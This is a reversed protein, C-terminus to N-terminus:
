VQRHLSHFFLGERSVRKSVLKSHLIPEDKRREIVRLYKLKEFALIEKDIAECWEDADKGNLAQRCTQEYDDSTIELANVTFWALM